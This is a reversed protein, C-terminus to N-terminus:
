RHTLGYTVASTSMGINVISVARELRHHGMKHFFYSLGVTAAAEGTFNLALGGTSRGFVRVVPNLERGGSQLNQHTVTFDAACLSTTAAFLAINTKDWFRHEMATQIPPGSTIFSTIVPAASEFSPQPADLALEQGFSPSSLGCVILITAACCAFIAPNCRKM